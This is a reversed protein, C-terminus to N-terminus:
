LEEEEVSVRTMCSTTLVLVSLLLFILQKNGQTLFFCNYDVRKVVTASPKIKCITNLLCRLEEKWECEALCPINVLDHLHEMPRGWSACRRLAARKDGEGGYVAKALEEMTWQPYPREVLNFVSGKCLTGESVVECFWGALARSTTYHCIGKVGYATGNKDDLKCCPKRPCTVRLILASDSVSLVDGLCVDGPLDVLVQEGFRPDIVAAVDTDPFNGFGRHRVQRYAQISQLLVARESKKKIFGMTDYLHWFSHGEIGKEPVFLAQSISVRPMFVSLENDRGYVGLVSGVAVSSGADTVDLYPIPQLKDKEQLELKELVAKWGSDADHCLVLLEELESMTRSWSPIQYMPLTRDGRNAFAADSLERLTWQPLPREVLVLDSGQCFVGECLVVCSWGIIRPQYAVGSHTSLNGEIHTKYQCDAHKQPVWPSAVRLKMTSGSVQYVDGLCVGDGNIHFTIQEPLRPDQQIDVNDNLFQSTINSSQTHCHSQNPYLLISRAIGTLLDKEANAYVRSIVKGDLSCKHPVFYASSLNSSLIEFNEHHEGLGCMTLVHHKVKSCNKGAPPENGFSRFDEYQHTAIELFPKPPMSEQTKPPYFPAHNQIKLIQTTAVRFSM